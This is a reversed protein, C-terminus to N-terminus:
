WKKERPYTLIRWENYLESVLSPRKRLRRNLNDIIRRAKRSQKRRRELEQIEQDERLKEQFEHARYKWFNTLTFDMQALAVRQIILM